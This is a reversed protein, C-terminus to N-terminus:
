DQFRPRDDSNSLSSLSSTATYDPASRTPTRGELSSTSPPRIPSWHSVTGHVSSVHGLGSSRNVTRWTSHPYRTPSLPTSPVVTRPQTRPGQPVRQQLNANMRRLPRAVEPPSPLTTYPSPSASSPTSPYSERMGGFSSSVLSPSSISDRREGLRVMVPMGSRFSVSRVPHVAGEDSGNSSSVCEGTRVSLISTRAEGSESDRARSADSFVRVLLSDDRSSSPPEVEESVSMPRGRTPSPPPDVTNASTRRSSPWQSHTTDSPWQSHTTGSPWQFHTPTGTAWHPLTFGSNRQTRLTEASTRPPAEESVSLLPPSVPSLPYGAHVDPSFSQQFLPSTQALMQASTPSIHTSPSGKPLPSTMGSHAGESRPAFPGTSLPSAYGASRASIPTGGSRPSIPIGGSRPSVPAGGLRPPVPGGGLRPSIPMGGSRPSVPTGGTRPSVPSRPLVLSTESREVPLVFAEGRTGGVYVDRIRRSTSAAQPQPAVTQPHASPLTPQHASSLTPSLTPSLTLPHAFSVTPPHVSSPSPVQAPTNPLHPSRGHSPSVAGAVVPTRPPTIVGDGSWAPGHAPVYAGKPPPAPVYARSAPVYARPAPAYARPAPVYSGKALPAYGVYGVKPVGYGGAKLLSTPPPDDYEERLPPPTSLPSSRLGFGGEDQPLGKYGRTRMFSREPSGLPEDTPAHTPRKLVYFAGHFTFTQFLYVLQRQPPAPLDPNPVQSAQVQVQSDSVEQVRAMDHLLPSDGGRARARGMREYPKYSFAWVHVAALCMMEFTELLATFGTIIEYATLYETDPVLNLSALGSLLTSQWFTLFLVFQATFLKLGPKYPKLEHHLTSYLQVLCYMAVTTSVSVITVVYVHGWRWSWSPECYLDRQELIVAALTSGPRVICYQFVGWTMWHLYTLGDQPRARVWGLPFIWKLTHSDPHMLLHQFRHHVVTARDPETRNSPVYELLLLFFSALAISAYMDRILFPWTTNSVYAALTISAYIPAM